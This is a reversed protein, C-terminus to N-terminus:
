LNKEKIDHLFSIKHKILTPSLPPPLFDIIGDTHVIKKLDNETPTGLLLLPLHQPRLLKALSSIDTEPNLSSCVITQNEPTVKTIQDGSEMICFPIEAGQLMGKLLDYDCANINYLLLM